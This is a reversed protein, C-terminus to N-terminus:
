FDEPLIADVRLAAVFRDIEDEMNARMLRRLDHVLTETGRDLKEDFREVADEDYVGGGYWECNPCRLAVDWHSAGVEEWAVPLVLESACCPCVHLESPQDPAHAPTADSQVFLVDVMEGTPLAVRRISNHDARNSMSPMPDAAIRAFKLLPEM